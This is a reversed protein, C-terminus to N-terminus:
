RLSRSTIRQDYHKDERRSSVEVLHLMVQRTHNWRIERPRQQDDIDGSNQLEEAGGSQCGGLKSSSGGITQNGEKDSHKDGIHVCCLFADGQSAFRRRWEPQPRWHLKKEDCKEPPRRTSALSGLSMERPRQSKWMEVEGLSKTIRIVAHFAPESLSVSSSRHPLLCPVYRAGPAIGHMLKACPRFRRFREIQIQSVM